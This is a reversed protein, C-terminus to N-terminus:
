KVLKSEGPLALVCLLLYAPYIALLYRIIAPWSVADIIAFLGLRSLILLVLFLAIFTGNSSHRAIVLRHNRILQLFYHGVFYTLFLSGIIQLIRFIFFHAGISPFLENAAKGGQDHTISAYHTIVEPTTTLHSTGNLAQDLEGLTIFKYGINLLSLFIFPIDKLTLPPYLLNGTPNSSCSILGEECAAHLESVIQAYFARATEASRYVGLSNAANRLAWMSWGGILENCIGLMQCGGQTWGRGDTQQDLYHKLRSMAPSVSYAAELAAHSVPVRAIRPGAEIHALLESTEAFTPETMEYVLGMGYHSKNMAM